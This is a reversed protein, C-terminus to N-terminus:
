RPRWALLPGRSFDAYVADLRRESGGDPRMVYLGADGGRVSIYALYRGDPSWAPRVGIGRPDTVATAGGGAARSVAIYASGVRSVAFAIHTGQPSWAPAYGTSLWQAAGGELDVVRIEEQAPGSRSTYAIRRGDPSWAFGTVGRVVGAVRTEVRRAPGGSPAILYLQAAGGRPDLFAIFRGDPSWAPAHGPVLRRPRAGRLDAVYLVFDGGTGTEVFALARGDPSWTPTMHSAPPRTVRHLSSGDAGVVFVQTAVGTAGVFALRTGDRSWTPAV